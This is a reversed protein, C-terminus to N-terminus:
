ARSPHARGTRRDLEAHVEDIRGQAGRSDGAARLRAAEALPPVLDDVPTGRSRAVALLREVLRLRNTVPDEGPDPAKREPETPVYGVLGRPWERLPSEGTLRRLRDTAAFLEREAGSWDHARVASRAAELHRTAEADPVEMSRLQHEVGTLFGEVEAPGPRRRAASM